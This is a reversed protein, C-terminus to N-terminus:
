KVTNRLLKRLRLESIKQKVALRAPTQNAANEAAKKVRAEKLKALLEPNERSLVQDYYRPPRCREGNSIIFDCPYVDSTYKMLWDKGIGPNRSMTTYEPTRDFIEGTLEDVAEYHEQALDGNVKKMIYRAVYAASTWTLEGIVAHGLGWTKTLLPSNYYAHGLKSIKYLTRDEIFDLGFIAAHYHPRHTEEGYEGCMFYRFKAGSKRLRKAFRVFHSKDLSGGPPINEDSLTLTIFCGKEATQLEHMCRVAWHRSRELRCGVCRGCPVTLPGPLALPNKRVM